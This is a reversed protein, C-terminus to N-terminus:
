GASPVKPKARLQFRLHGKAHDAEAQIVLAVEGGTLRPMDFELLAQGQAGSESVYEAPEAAGEVHATVRAGQAPHGDAKNKVSLHLTARKGVLWNKANALELVLSGPGSAAAPPAPAPIEPIAALQLSGDRIKEVVTHHQEDVRSRLAVEREPNLPLLDRYNNTQRHLVRGHWFVTTDILAHEGGRDETQVHYTVPGVTVNTNHGFLMKGNTGERASGLILYL